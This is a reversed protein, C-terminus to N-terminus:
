ARAPRPTMSDRTRFGDATYRTSASTTFSCTQPARPHGVEAAPGIVGNAVAFSRALTPMALLSHDFRHPRLSEVDLLWLAHVPRPAAQDHALHAFAWTDEATASSVSANFAREGLLSGLYSPELKAARSSGYIVVQPAPVRRALLCAKITRDSSTAHAAAAAACAWAIAAAVLAARRAGAHDWRSM